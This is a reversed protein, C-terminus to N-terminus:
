EGPMVVPEAFGAGRLYRALVNRLDATPSIATRNFVLSDTLSLLEDVHADSNPLGAKALAQAAVLRAAASVGSDGILRQRLDSADDLELLLAYRARMDGRRAALTGVLGALLTALHDVTFRREDHDFRTNADAALAETDIKTRSALLDVILELLAARTKAHYSTSGQPLQAERDVARHTLARVGDRAIIRIGADAILERRNRSSM